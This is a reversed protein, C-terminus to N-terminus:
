EYVGFEVTPHNGADTDFELYAAGEDKTLTYNQPMKVKNLLDDYFAKAKETTEFTYTHSASYGSADLYSSTINPLKTKPTPMGNYDNRNEYDINGNFFEKAAEMNQEFVTNFTKWTKKSFAETQAIALNLTFVLTSILLTFKM